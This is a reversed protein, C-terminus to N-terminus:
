RTARLSILTHLTPLRTRTGRWASSINAFEARRRAVPLFSQSCVIPCSGQRRSGLLSESQKGNPVDQSRGSGRSGAGTHLSRGCAVPRGSKSRATRVHLFVEDRNSSANRFVQQSPVDACKLEADVDDNMQLRVVTRSNPSAGRGADEIGGGGLLSVGHCVARM